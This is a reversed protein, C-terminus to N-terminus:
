DYGEGLYRKFTKNDWVKVDHAKVRYIFKRINDLSERKFEKEKKVGECNLDLEM